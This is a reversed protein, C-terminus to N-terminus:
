SNVLSLIKIVSNNKQMALDKKYASSSEVKLFSSLENKEDYYSKILLKSMRKMEEVDGNENELSEEM